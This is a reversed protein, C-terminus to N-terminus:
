LLFGFLWFCNDLEINDEVSVECMDKLRELGFEESLMLLGVSLTENDHFNINDTYIYEM